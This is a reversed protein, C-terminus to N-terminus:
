GGPGPEPPLYELYERLDRMEANKEDLLRPLIKRLSIMGVLKGESVVPLHRCHLELMIGVAENLSQAANVCRPAATMVAGVRTSHPNRGEALVRVLADRETFIGVLRTGDLVPLAGINWEAMLRVAQAVTASRTTLCTRQDRVVERLSHSM